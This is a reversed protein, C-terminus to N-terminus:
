DEFAIEKQREEFTLPRENIINGSPDVTYHRNLQTDILVWVTGTKDIGGIRCSEAIKNMDEKANKLRDALIKREDTVEKETDKFYSVAQVTEEKARALEEDSYNHFYNVDHKLSARNQKLFEQVDALTENERMYTLQERINM